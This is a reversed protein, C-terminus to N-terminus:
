LRTVDIEYSKGTDFMKINEDEYVKSPEEYRIIDSFWTEYSVCTIYLENYSIDKLVILIASSYFFIFVSLSM